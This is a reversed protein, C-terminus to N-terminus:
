GGLSFGIANPWCWGTAILEIPGYRDWTGDYDDDYRCQVIDWMDLWNEVCDGACNWGHSFCQVMSLGGAGASFSNPVGATAISLKRGDTVGAAALVFSQGAAVGAAAGGFSQGGGRWGGRRRVVTRGGRARVGGGGSGVHM